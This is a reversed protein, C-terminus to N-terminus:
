NGEASAPDSPQAGDEALNPAPESYRALMNAERERLQREAKMWARVRDVSELAMLKKPEVALARDLTALSASYDGEREQCMAINFLVSVQAPNNAELEKFADCADNEDTKTLKVAAKFAKRDEKRLGKRRELIRYDRQLYRPALATRVQWVFNGILEDGMANVSPSAGADACSDIARRLEDRVAHIVYGDEGIVEIDPYLSVETRTCEYIDTRYRVCQDDDNKEECERVEKPQLEVVSGQFSASGQIVANVASTNMPVIEFWPEGEVRTQGLTEKLEFALQSGKAGRLEDVAITEINLGADTTAPLHAGVRLTEAHATGAYLTAALAVFSASTKCIIAM